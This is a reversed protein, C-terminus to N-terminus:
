EDDKVEKIEGMDRLVSAVYADAREKSLGKTSQICKSKGAFTKYLGKEFCDKKKEKETMLRDFEEKSIQRLQSKTIKM